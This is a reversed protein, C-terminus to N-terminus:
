RPCCTTPWGPGGAPARLTRLHGDVARGSTGAAPPSRARRGALGPAARVAELVAPVIAAPLFPLPLWVVSFEATDALALADQERLEVRGDLNAASVNARALELAPTFIDIGVVPAEPYAQALAIALWGTGTGVDLIRAEGALQEALAPQCQGAAESRGRRREDVDARHGAAPWTWSTGDAPAARTACCSPGRPSSRRRSGSCRPRRRPSTGGPRRPLEAGIAQLVAHVEPDVPLHESEIRVFAGLHPWRM